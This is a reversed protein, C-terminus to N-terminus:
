REKEWKSIRTLLNANTIDTQMQNGQVRMQKWSAWKGTKSAHTHLHSRSVKIKKQKEKQGVGGLKRFRQLIPPLSVVTAFNETNELMQLIRGGYDRM